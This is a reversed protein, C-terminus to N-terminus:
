AAAVEDLETVPADVAVRTRRSAWQRTLVALLVAGATWGGMVVADRGVDQGFFYQLTGSAHLWAAGLWFSHLGAFFGPQLAPQFVGGSSTFNLMVFLATLVPTTWHQLLPHLAVGLTQIVAVYWWSLLWVLVAHDGLVGYVPGAVVAALASMAASTALVAVATWLPGVKAAVGALVVAGAYGGISLAVLLFFLGQGSGDGSKAPVVDDVHFLLGQEYAVKTFVDTTVTATTPSAATSLYLTARTGDSALVAALSRDRVDARAAAVSPVVHAVLAGDSEDTITQAAVAARADTGVVGVPLQHPAPQHFAGLYALAMGVSLFLPILVALGFGRIVPWPPVRRARRVATRPAALPTPRSPATTM